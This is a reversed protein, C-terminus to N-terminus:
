PRNATIYVASNLVSEQREREDNSDDSNRQKKSSNSVGMIKLVWVNAVYISKAFLVEVVIGQNM